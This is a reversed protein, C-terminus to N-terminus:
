RAGGLFRLVKDAVAAPKERHVFHGAGEIRVLEYGATFAAPTDAFVAVDTAGDDAGYITMTPVNTKRANLRRIESARDRYFDLGVPNNDDWFTRYYGLAGDVGGEDFSRKVPGLERALAARDRLIPWTPSWRAYIEDVQAYHNAELEGKASDKALTIFHWSKRFFGVSPKYVSPHAIAVTVLKKVMREDIAAASYAAFAGWDHGIVIAPTRREVGRKANLAEILGLVDKGMSRSSYDGDAARGTPAYGRMYPAVAHYGAAALKPMLDDWTHPTDPFGHLCVVLPGDAPGAELYAFPIGNARVLERREGAEATVAQDSADADDEEAPACAVFLPISLLSLARFLTRPFM